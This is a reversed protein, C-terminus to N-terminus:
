GSRSVGLNKQLETSTSTYQAVTRAKPDTLKRIAQTALAAEHFGSLILRLKGPYLCIDGIAFVGRIGTEFTSPEVPIGEPQFGINWDVFPSRASSGIIGWGGAIIVASAALPAGSSLGLTFRGSAHKGFTTAVTEFIMTPRFPALQELVRDVLGQGTIVPWAPVDYIPKDAYYEICQGGPDNRADVIVCKFGFLGLQFAAFLGVPGAGIIVVDTSIPSALESL